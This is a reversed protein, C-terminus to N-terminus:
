FHIRPFTQVVSSNTGLLYMLDLNFFNLFFRVFTISYPATYIFSSSPRSKRLPQLSHAPFSEAEELLPSGYISPEM